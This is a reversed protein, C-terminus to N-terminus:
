RQGTIQFSNLFREVSKSKAVDEVGVAQLVFLRDELLYVHILAAFGATSNILYERGLGQKVDLKKERAIEGGTETLFKKRMGELAQAMEKENNLKGPSKYGMALYSLRERDSRVVYITAEIAVALSDDRRKRAEPEGPFEISYGDSRATFRRWPQQAPLRKLTFMETDDGPRTKFETPRGKGIRFCLKLDDGRLEYIGPLADTTILDIAKPSKAPDLEFRLPTPPHGRESLIVQDDKFTFTTGAYANEERPKGNSELGVAKWIGQIKQKDNKESNLKDKEQGAGPVVSALLVIPLVWASLSPRM